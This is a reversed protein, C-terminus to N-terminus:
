VGSGRFMAVPDRMMRVILKQIKMQVDTTGPLPQVAIKFFVRQGRVGTVWELDSALATGSDADSILQRPSTPPLPNVLSNVFPTITVIGVGSIFASIHKYLHRGSGLQLTLEQDHDVFAYTVYYPVIPGYDDDTLKAPDLWYINGFAVGTGPTSGSGGGLYLQKVNGPRILIEASNAKINWRTWKRTMDSSKMKGTLTIHIPLAAAIQAATDMERYDFLFVLNPATAGKVPVGILAFRQNVNNKVWITQQCAWNIDDWTVATPATGLTRSMEQAVKYFAAGMHIYVGNKSAIIDWDEASDGTGFKGPDCARLSLAGVSHTLSDVAWANQGDGPEYNNDQFEHTAEGTHLMGVNRQLSFNQIPSQDDAPGLNGTTQAFAEPNLAYSVRSLNNRFPDQVFIMQLESVNVTQGVPLGIQQIRLVLDPPIVPLSPSSFPATLFSGVTSAGGLNFTADSLLGATPSILEIVIQGGLGPASVKIWLRFFYSTGPELINDGFSDQYAPQDIVGTTVGNGGGTMQWSMGGAWSGGNVLAGVPFTLNPTWALPITPASGLFGGSFGMNLFNEVKQWDGWTMLRSAFSFFGMPTGLVIQDFLNNGVVDIPIGAFLANDSFDVTVQTTTNDPIVLAQIVTPFGTPNPLTANALLTFFNGGGAGTFALVRAVVNSPGRALGNIIARKGGAATWFSAPSPETLYGSRTLFIQVVQHTGGSITGADSITGGGSPSLAYTNTVLFVEGSGLLVSMVPWTGNYGGITVGAITVMQGPIFPPNPITSFAIAYPFQFTGGSAPPLGSINNLYTLSFVIHGPISPVILVSAIPFTGNYGGSGTGVGAVLISDGVRPILGTNLFPASTLTVINGIETLGANDIAPIMSIGNPSDNLTFSLDLDAATVPAGPGDMTVRDLFMNNFQLPVGQGHLLDSFAIYESGFASVSQAYLGAPVTGIQEYTEPTTVVDEVWLKGDSTLILTLAGGSPVVYTKQYVVSVGGPFPIPFEKHLGGRSSTDGPLFIMDQNDPSLGEPVDSPSIETDTGGFISLTVDVAIAPTAM